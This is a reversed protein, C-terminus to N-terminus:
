SFLVYEPILCSCAETIGQKIRMNFFGYIFPNLSSNMLALTDALVIVSEPIDLTHDSFILINYVVFYPTWCVVFSLVITLSMKLTKMKARPIRRTGCTKRLGDLLSSYYLCDTNINLLVTTNRSVYQYIPTQYYRCTCSIRPM